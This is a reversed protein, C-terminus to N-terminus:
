AKAISYIENVIKSDMEEDFKRAFMCESNMLFDFDEMGFTYPNGRSWDVCRSNLKSLDDTRHINKSFESNMLITQLFIEDSNQTFYFYKKYHPWSSLVYGAFADTISFWNAGGYFKVNRNRRIKLRRQIALSYTELCNYIKNDRTRGLGKMFFHYVNYRSAMDTQFDDPGLHIFEKGSQEFYQHIDAQKRLPLDVGSLLHYYAHKRKVAHRLLEIECKMMSTHGWYVKYKSFVEIHSISVLSKIKDFCLDKCKQDVHIYIDNNENDLLKLLKVFVNTYEHMMLLYAHKM